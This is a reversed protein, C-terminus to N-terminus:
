VTVKVGAPVHEPTVAVPVMVAVALLVIANLEAGPVSECLTQVLVAKALIVYVVVPAAPAPKLPSGAPTVPEQAALVTVMLPVGMMDPM